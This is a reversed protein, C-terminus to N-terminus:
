ENKEECVRKIELAVSESLEALVLLYERITQGERNVDHWVGGVYNMFRTSKFAHENMRNGKTSRM